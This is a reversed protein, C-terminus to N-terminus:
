IGVRRVRVPRGVHSERAHVSKTIIAGMARASDARRRRRRRRSRLRGREGGVNRIKELPTKAEERRVMEVSKGSIRCCRLLFVRKRREEDDFRGSSSSSSNSSISSSYNYHEDIFVFVFVVIFSKERGSRSSFFFFIFDQDNPFCFFSASRSLISIGRRTRAASFYLLLKQAHVSVHIERERHTKTELSRAGREPKCHLFKKFIKM